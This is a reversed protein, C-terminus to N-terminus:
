GPCPSIADDSLYGTLSLPSYSILHVLFSDTLRQAAKNALQRFLQIIFSGDLYRRVTGDLSSVSHVIGSPPVFM